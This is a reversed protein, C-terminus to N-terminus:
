GSRSGSGSCPKEQNAARPRNQNPFGTRCLHSSILNQGIMNGTEAPKRREGRGRWLAVGGPDDGVVVSSLQRRVQSDHPSLVAADANLKSPPRLPETFPRSKVRV